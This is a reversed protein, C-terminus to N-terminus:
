CREFVRYLSATSVIKLVAGAEALSTPPELYSRLAPYIVHKARRELAATASASGTTAADASALALGPAKESLDGAEAGITTDQDASLDSPQVSYFKGLARAIGDFCPQRM